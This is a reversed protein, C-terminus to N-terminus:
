DNEGFKRVRFCSEYLSSGHARFWLLLRSMAIDDNRSAFFFLWTDQREGQQRTCM